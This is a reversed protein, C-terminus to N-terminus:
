LRCEPAIRLTTVRLLQLRKAGTSETLQRKIYLLRVTFQTPITPISATSIVATLYLFRSGFVTVRVEQRMSRRYRAGPKAAIVAQMFRYAHKAKVATTLRFVASCYQVKLFIVSLRRCNLFALSGLRLFHLMTRKKWLRYWNGNKVTIPAKWLKLIQKEKTLFKLPVFFHATTKGTTPFPFLQLTSHVTKGYRPRRVFYTQGQKWMWFLM